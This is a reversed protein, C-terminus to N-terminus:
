RGHALGGLSSATMHHTRQASATTMEAGRRSLPYLDGFTTLSANFHLHATGDKGGRNKAIIVEALGECRADRLKKLWIARQLVDAPEPNQMRWYYEDRYVFMVVDADQEISGSERLDSQVPRKNERQEVQRSLQSLAIIPVNLEKALAKLGSTIETVEQVRSSERSTSRMLQLYDVVILEVGHRRRMRRARATLQGISIGGRDDIIIPADAIRAQSSIFKRMAEDDGGRSLVDSPVGCDASAIRLAIEDAGMELSYIGVPVHNRALNWVISTALASKGMAPRGAVVYLKGRALGGLKADLDKIGTSLGRLGSGARHADDIQKSAAGLAAKFAVEGGREGREALAFLEGEIDEVIDAPSADTACEMAAAVADSGIRVIERRLALNRVTRAYEPANIWTVAATALRGIYQPVTMTDSIPPASRFLDSLALPDVPRSAAIRSAITKFIQRHLPDYFDRESVTEAIRDFMDNRLLLAGLLAQEAEINHPMDRSLWDPNSVTGNPALTM